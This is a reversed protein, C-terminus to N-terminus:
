SEFWFYHIPALWYTTPDQENDNRSRSLDNTWRGQFGERAAVAAVVADREHENLVDSAKPRIRFLSCFRRWEIDLDLECNNSLILVKPHVETIPVNPFRQRAQEAFMIGQILCAGSLSNIQLVSKGVRNGYRRRLWSDAKRGASRGSSWWLPTDIGIGAPEAVLGKLADEACLFCKAEFLGNSDLKALGFCDIGGPDVGVWDATANM